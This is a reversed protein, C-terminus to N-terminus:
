RPVAGAGGAVIDARTQRVVVLFREAVRSGLSCWRSPRLARTAPFPRSAPDCNKQISPLSRCPQLESCAPGMLTRSWRVRCAFLDRAEPMDMVDMNEISYPIGQLALEAALQDRHFHNRYLVACDSWARRSKRQWDRLATVMSPAIGRGKGDLVVVEVPVRPM